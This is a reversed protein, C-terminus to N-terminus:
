QSCSGTGPAARVYHRSLLFRHKSDWNSQHDLATLGVAVAAFTGAKIERDQTSMNEDLKATVYDLYFAKNICPLDAIAELVGQAMHQHDSHDGMNKKIDTDPINVWVNTPQGRELDILKRLMDSLDAWGQYTASGDIATMAPIAGEHLRKLSQLGTNQYGAGEMDGDPLRLFYSVTDRYLWRKIAHGAIFAVSDTPIVPSNYADAMFMESAKAGNERALYYPQSRGANGLGVGDDGATLYVFVVKTSFTQVDHYANPNMFLQWDDEHAAFYFAVTGQALVVQGFSLLSFLLLLYKM